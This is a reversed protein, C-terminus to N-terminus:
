LKNIVVVDVVRKEAMPALQLKVIFRFLLKM